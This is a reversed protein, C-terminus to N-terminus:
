SQELRKIDWLTQIDDVARQLRKIRFECFERLTQSELMRRGNGSIMGARALEFAVEADVLKEFAEQTARFPEIESADDTGTM